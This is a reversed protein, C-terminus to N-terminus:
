AFLTEQRETSGFEIFNRVPEFSRRHHPTVGHRNIGEIHARTSYGVNTDWGYHPYEGALKKMVRDRYVKALISAAAISVSKNDGKIVPTAPCPLNGPVHNGDILAHDPKMCTIQMFARAMATLSAQLINLRDIEEPAM